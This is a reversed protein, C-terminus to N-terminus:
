RWASAARITGEIKALAEDLAHRLTTHARTREACAVAALLILVGATRKWLRWRNTSMTARRARARRTGFAKPSPM